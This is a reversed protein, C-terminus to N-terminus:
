CLCTNKRLKGYKWEEWIQSRQNVSIKTQFCAARASVIIITAKEGYSFNRRFSSTESFILDSKWLETAIRIQDSAFVWNEARAPHM